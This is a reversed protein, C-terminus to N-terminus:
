RPLAEQLLDRLLPAIASVDGGLDLWYCPVCGVLGALGPLGSGRAHRVMWLSSPALRLLAQSRSAPSIRPGPVGTVRPLVLLDIDAAPRLREPCAESLLILAKDEEPLRGRIAHRALRPFRWLDDPRLHTSGHLGHGVYASGTRAELGVYDDSVFDFGDLLCSLVTTTKGSGSEGAVLIGRGDAAVLGAHAADVRRDRLWLLLPAYLPRGRDLLALRDGAEVWGAIRGLARDLCTVSANRRYIVWRGDTSAATADGPPLVEDVLRRPGPVRSASQDWLGVHLEPAAGPGPRPLHAFAPAIARALGRGVIRIRAARGALAPALEVVSDPTDATASDFAAQVRAFVREGDAPALDRTAPNAPAHRGPRHMSGIAEDASPPAVPRIM